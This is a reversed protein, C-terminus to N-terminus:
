RRGGPRQKVRIPRVDSGLRGGATRAEFHLHPGTVNGTAGTLGVVTGPFVAQGVEVLIGSLHGYGYDYRGGRTRIIVLNGYASGWSDDGPGAHVVLGRTVAIALSGVPADHDAGTHYGLSWLTGRQRYPTSVPVPRLTVPHLVVPLVKGNRRRETMRRILEAKMAANLNLPTM